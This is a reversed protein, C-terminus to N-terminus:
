ADDYLDKLTNNLVTEDRLRFLASVNASYVPLFPDQDEDYRIM